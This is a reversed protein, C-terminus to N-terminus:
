SRYLYNDNMDFADITELSTIILDNPTASM